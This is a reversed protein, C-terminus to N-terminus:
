KSLPWSIISVKRRVADSSAWVGVAVSEAMRWATLSWTAAMLVETALRAKTPGMEALDSAEIVIVLRALRVRVATTAPSAM